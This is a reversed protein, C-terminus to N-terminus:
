DDKAERRKLERNIAHILREAETYASLMQLKMTELDETPTTALVEALTPQNTNM